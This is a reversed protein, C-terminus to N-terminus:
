TRICNDVLSVYLLIFTLKHTKNTQKTTWQKYRPLNTSISMQTAADPRKGCDMKVWPKGLIGYSPSQHTENEPAAKKM